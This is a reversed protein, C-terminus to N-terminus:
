EQGLRTLPTAICVPRGLRTILHVDCDGTRRALDTPDDDVLEVLVSPGQEGVAFVVFQVAFQDIGRVTLREDISNSLDICEDM